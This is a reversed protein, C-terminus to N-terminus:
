RMLVDACAGDLALRASSLEGLEALLQAREARQEVAVRTRQRCQRIAAASKAAEVSQSLLSGWEGRAFAFREQLKGKPVLGLRSPKWLLVRPFLLFLKM